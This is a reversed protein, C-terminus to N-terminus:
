GRLGISVCRRRLGKRKIAGMARIAAATASVSTMVLALLAALAALPGAILRPLRM